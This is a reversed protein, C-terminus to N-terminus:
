YYGGSEFGPPNDFQGEYNRAPIDAGSLMAGYGSADTVANMEPDVIVGDNTRKRALLNDKIALWHQATREGSITLPGIKITESDSTALSAASEALSIAADHLTRSSDIITNIIDDTFDAPLGLLNARIVARQQETAM